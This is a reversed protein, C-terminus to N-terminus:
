RTKGTDRVTEWLLRLEDDSQRGINRWPMVDNIPTGDPRRGGRMAAIFQELTWSAFASTSSLDAARLAGLQRGRLDAGHCSKCTEISVAPNSSSVPQGASPTQQTNADAQTGQKNGPDRMEAMHRARNAAIVDRYVYLDSIAVATVAIVGCLILALPTILLILLFRRM